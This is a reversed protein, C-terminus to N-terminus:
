DGKKKYVKGQIEKIINMIIKQEGSLRGHVYAYKEGDDLDIYGLPIYRKNNNKVLNIYLRSKKHKEWERAEIHYDKYGSTLSATDINNLTKIATQVDMTRAM